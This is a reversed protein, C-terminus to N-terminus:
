VVGPSTGSWSEGFPMVVFATRHAPQAANSRADVEEVWDRTIALQRDVYDEPTRIGEFSTVLAADVMLDWQDGVSGGAFADPHDAELFRPLRVVTDADFRFFKENDYRVSPRESPGRYAEVAELTAAVTLELLSRAAPVGLVHRAGLIIREKHAMALQGPLHPRSDAISQPNLNRVGARFLQRQLDDTRPWEGERLFWAFVIEIM